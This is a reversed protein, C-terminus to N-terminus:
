ERRSRAKQRFDGWKFSFPTKKDDAMPKFWEPSYINRRPIFRDERFRPFLPFGAENGYRKIIYPNKEREESRFVEGAKENKL